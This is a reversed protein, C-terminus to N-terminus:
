REPQCAEAFGLECAKARLTSARAEDRTVGSGWGYSRSLNYCGEADNLAGIGEIQQPV